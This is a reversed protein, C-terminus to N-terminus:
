DNKLMEKWNNENGDKYNYKCQYCKSHLRIYFSDEFIKCTLCKEEIM